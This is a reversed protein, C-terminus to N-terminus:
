DKKKVMKKKDCTAYTEVPSIYQRLSASPANNFVDVERKEGPLKPNGQIPVM